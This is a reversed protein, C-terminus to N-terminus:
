ASLYQQKVEALFDVLRGSFAVPQQAQKQHYHKHHPFTPVQPHHPSNDCSFILNQHTNVFSYNYDCVKLTYDEYEYTEICYIRSGDILEILIDLEEEKIFQEPDFDLYPETKMLSSLHEVLLSLVSYIHIAVLNEKLGM